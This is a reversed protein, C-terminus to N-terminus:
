DDDQALLDNIERDLDGVVIPDSQGHKRAQARTAEDTQTRARLYLKIPIDKFPLKSRFAGLLYRQYTPDFISPTNVFVVITPPAVGVQTAYYIKPQKNERTPPPHSDVAERTVRNLLATSVRRNAQKFM